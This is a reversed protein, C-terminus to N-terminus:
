DQLADAGARLVFQLAARLRAPPVPKHLLPIGSARIRAIGAVSSEGSVLLAPIARGFRARLEAIAALGDTGGALRYDVIMADPPSADPPVDPAGAFASGQCGWAALADVMAERVAAEDDVVLVRRGALVGPQPDAAELPRAERAVGEPVGVRFMSGRGVRSRVEVEHRLLGALRRVIALGLGLGQSRDRGPNGIQYFEEFIRGQEAAPIGPGTDWVEISLGSGRQRCGVLVGGRKTYKLANAVLNRLIRELLLPDSRAVRRTPLVLFVLGADSAEPAFDNAIRAFLTDLPFDRPVAVIAGAELKSVDLLSSLLTELSAVLARIREVSSRTGADSSREGLTAAVLGLAHLPQRLDHSAAALFRSKARDAAEARSRAAEAQQRLEDANRRATETVALQRVLAASKEQVRAELAANAREAANLARVFRDVLVWGFLTLFFVASYPVLWLPRIAAGGRAVLWDHVGFGAAVGGAVLLLLGEISRRSAAYRAVAALAVFVVAIGFARAVAAVAGLAGYPPAGVLLSAYLLPGVALAFGVAARRYLRSRLGVFDACFLSLLVVVVMYVTNWLIAYHPNPLPQYPLLSVATHAGWLLAAVGFLGYATERRRLWLFLISLGVVISAVSVVAPALTHIALERLAQDRLEVEAGALVVDIGTSDATPSNVQLLVVNRGAVLLRPPVDFAQAQDFSRPRPGDFEGTAGVYIGNVYVRVQANTGKLYVAYSRRAVADVTWPLRYWAVGTAGPRTASWRDPLTVPQWTTAPTPAEDSPLLAFEGRDLTAFGSATGVASALASALALWAVLAFRGALATWHPM